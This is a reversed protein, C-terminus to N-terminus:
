ENDVEDWSLTTVRTTDESQEEKKTAERNLVYDMGPAIKKPEDKKQTKKNEM